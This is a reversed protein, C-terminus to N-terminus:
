LNAESLHFKTWNKKLFGPANFRYGLFVQFYIRNTTTKVKTSNHWQVAQTLSFEAGTYFRKHNYGIAAKEIMRFVPDSYRTVMESEPSITRLKIHQFGGGTLLGASAYFSEGFVFTYMYGLSGNLLFNNSVQGTQRTTDISKDRNDIKFIDYNLVAIFSGSSKLQKETQQSIARLSFCPNFKYGTVGRFANISLGPFQIYPDVGETWGTRYDGTNKLYFGKSKLFYLEQFWHNSYGQIGFSFSNTEGKLDDNGNGPLFAPKFGINLTLRQYSVSLKNWLNINPRIDYYFDNGSIKFIDFESNVNLRVSILSDYKFIYQNSEQSIKEKKSVGYSFVPEAFLHLFLCLEILVYLKFTMNGHYNNNRM